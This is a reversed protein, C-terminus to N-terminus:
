FSGFVYRVGVEVNWNYAGPATQGWIGVGPRV